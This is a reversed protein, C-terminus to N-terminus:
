DGRPIFPTGAYYNSLATWYVEHEEGKSIRLYFLARKRDAARRPCFVGTGSRRRRRYGCCSYRQRGRQQGHNKTEPFSEKYKNILRQIEIAKEFELEESATNMKEELEKLVSEYNGNLFHIVESIAEGSKKRSIYGQCPADCQKIHYNYFPREKGTDRPLNRNCSRVHYLRRLLDLTDRVAQASTYPGFYRAKDKQMRRALMVRPYAENVTVKIFPYAKRDMPM